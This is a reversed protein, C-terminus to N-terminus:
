LKIVRDKELPSIWLVDSFVIFDGGSNHKERWKRFDSNFVPVFGSFERALLGFVGQTYSSMYVLTEAKNLIRSKSWVGLLEPIHLGLFDDDLFDYTDKLYFGLADVNVIFNGGDHNVCGRLCVKLNANGIAGYWDNVTDAKSGIRMFNVQATADLFTVDESMGITEIKKLNYGLRILRRKLLSRSKTTNWSNKLKQIGSAVQEYKIAWDMKVIDVNVREPPLTRADRSLLDYKSEGDFSYAPSIKFWHEMLEPAIEWGMKRMANPIMDIHFFDVSVKKEQQEQVKSTTTSSVAM